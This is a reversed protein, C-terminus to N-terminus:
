QFEQTNGMAQCYHPQLEKLNSNKSLATSVVILRDYGRSFECAQKRLAIHVITM